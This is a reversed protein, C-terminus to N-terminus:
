PQPSPAPLLTPSGFVRTTNTVSGSSFPTTYTTTSNPAIPTMITPSPTFGLPAYPMTNGFNIPGVRLSVPARQYSPSPAAISPGTQLFTTGGSGGPAPVENYTQTRSTNGSSDSNAERIIPIMHGNRNTAVGVNSFDQSQQAGPYRRQVQPGDSRKTARPRANVEEMFLNGSQDTIQEEAGAPMPASLSAISALSAVSALLVNALKLPM